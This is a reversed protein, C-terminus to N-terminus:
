GFENKFDEFRKLIDANVSPRTNALAKRFDHKTVPPEILKDGPVTTWNM